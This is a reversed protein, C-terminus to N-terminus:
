DNFLPQITKKLAMLKENEPFQICLGRFELSYDEWKSSSLDSHHNVLLNFLARGLETPIKELESYRKVQLRLEELLFSLLNNDQQEAVVALIRRLSRAFLIQIEEEESYEKTKIRLKSLLPTLQELDKEFCLWRIAITLGKSFCLQISNVEPFKKSLTELERLYHNMESLNNNKGFSSITNVLGEARLLQFEVDTPDEKVWSSLEVNLPIIKELENMEGYATIADVYAKGLRLQIEPDKSYQTHAKLTELFEEMHEIEGYIGFSRVANVLAMSYSIAIASNDPYLNVLNEAEELYDILRDITEEGEGLCLVVNVLAKSYFRSLDEIEPNSESLLAIEEVIKEIVRPRGIKCLVNTLNFLGRGLLIKITDDDPFRHFIQGVRSILSIMLGTEWYNGAWAAAKFLGIIAISQITKNTPWEDALELLEKAYNTAADLDNMDASRDLADRLAQAYIVKLESLIALQTSGIEELSQSSLALNDGPTSQFSEELFEDLIKEYCDIFVQLDHLTQIMEEFQESAGFWNMAYALAQAYYIIGEDTLPLNEIPLEKMLELSAIMSSLEHMDGYWNIEQALGKTLTGMLDVSIEELPLLKRLLKSFAKTKEYNWDEGFAAIAEIVVEAVGRRLLPNQPHQLTLKLLRHIYQEMPELLALSRIKQIAQLFVEFIIPLRNTASINAQLLDFLEEILLFLFDYDRYEGSFHNIAQEFGELQLFFLDVNAPNKAVIQKIIDLYAFVNEQNGESSEERIKSIISQIDEIEDDNPIELAVASIAEDDEQDKQESSLAESQDQEEKM